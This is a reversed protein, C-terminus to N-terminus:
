HLSYFVKITQIFLFPYLIERMKKRQNRDGKKYNPFRMDEVWMQDWDIIICNYPFKQRLSISFLVMEMLLEVYIVKKMNTKNQNQLSSKESLVSPKKTITHIHTRSACLKRTFLIRKSVNPYNINAHHFTKPCKVNHISTQRRTSLTTLTVELIQKLETECM